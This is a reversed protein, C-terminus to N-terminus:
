YKGTKFKFSYFKVLNNGALDKIASAPIYVQYTNYSSRRLNMKIKLTNGSITKTITVKKGTRLNKIYIKSWNISSKINETLRISITATRSFGTAGNKPTTLVVQPATKDIIYKETGMASKKGNSDICIFKLTTTSNIQIPGAYVTSYNTPTTGDTTYYITTGATASISVNKSTNYSGGALNAKVVLKNIADSDLVDLLNNADSSKKAVSDNMYTEFIITNIGKNAIPITVYKPSTGNPPTYSVLFPLKSIIEKVYRQTLSNKSIPDVFRPYKYGSVKYRNEHLDMVLLPNESSVDPVIFKQALLQGNMRGKSYDSADNTVHVQYLVYKKNLSSSRSKIANAMANHIGYEKPHVGIIIVITDNSSLNGYNEKTVYGYSTSGIEAAFSVSVASFIILVCLITGLMRNM